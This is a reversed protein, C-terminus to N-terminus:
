IVTIRRRPVDSNKGTTASCRLNSTAISRSSQPTQIFTLKLLVTRAAAHPYWQLDFVGNQLMCRRALRHSAKARDTQAGALEDAHDEHEVVGAIM